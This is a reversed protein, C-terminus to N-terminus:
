GTTGRRAGGTNGAPVAAERAASPAAEGARRRRALWVELGQANLELDMAYRQELAQGALASGRRRAEEHLLRRLGARLAAATDAEREVARALAAHADILRRLDAAEASPEELVGYHTLYARAPQMAMMRTLTEQWVEPEFQVPTTTPFILPRAEPYSLGFTDGTFLGRTYPDYVCLHHRAHGPTHLVELVRRGLALREGDEAAQVREAPVPVLEGHDDRMAQEGYVAVAGEWLRRPDVLHPAGRPHVILRADPLQAMLAGSAGAHDLHVHTPIVYDVAQRAVGAFALANLLHEAARGPGTDIFAARGDGVVLYAAALEARQFGTDILFVGDGLYTPESPM